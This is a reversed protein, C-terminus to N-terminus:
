PHLVLRDARPNVAAVRLSVREGLSVQRLGPVAQELGTEDLVVITRPDIEVVVAHVQRGLQEGVHRLLWYRGVAAEAKRAEIEARETSAAIRQLASRDYRPPRGDLADAIQRHLILDQYRRLPSTVQCYAPLGLACHPGPELSVEARHLRRRTARVEVPSRIGDPALIPPGSPAPQRRYIAPLDNDRCHRAAVAGALIMAEAVMRRSPSDPDIRDLEVRGDTVRAEVEPALLRVAGRSVRVAELARTREVLDRLATAWRGAGDSIMRDADRYDLRQRSRIVSRVIRYEIVDGAVGLDIMFSLAPRAEGPLLSAADHSIVEPLMPIRRDPFYYSVTRALADDDLEGGAEVFATPDAIHIGLRVADGSRTEISLADDIERTDAGDITLVDLAELDERGHSAFGRAVAEQAARRVAESFSVRVRYKAIQLNADDSEFRGLRRLIRFAGEEPTEFSGGGGELVQLALARAQATADSGQVALEELARLYRTEERSGTEVFPEGACVARLASLAAEHESRGRAIRDRELRLGSVAARDRPEWEEGRRTFHLADRALACAVTTRSRGDDRGLALTALSGLEAARSAEVAIEWLVAVDVEAAAREISSALRAAHRALSRRDVAPGGRSPEAAAVVCMVRSEPLRHDEEDASVLRLRDLGHELVAGLVLRNRDWWAVVTGPAFV